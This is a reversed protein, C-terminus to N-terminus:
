GVPALRLNLVQGAQTVRTLELHVADGGARSFLRVGDGLLVPVVHILVEDVLGAELAQRAVDAGFLVVYKEGAAKAATEVAEGIDGSLFTVSADDTPHHTLVFVPGSWGGGYPRQFEPREQRAGVDYTRRGALVAGIRRIVEDVESNEEGFGLMWDM